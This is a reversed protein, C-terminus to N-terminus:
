STEDSQKKHKSFPSDGLNLRLPRSFFLLVGLSCVMLGVVLVTAKMWPDSTPIGNVNITARPDLVLSLGWIAFCGGVFFFGIGTIRRLVNFLQVLLWFIKQLRSVYQTKVTQFKDTQVPGAVQQLQQGDIDCVSADDSFKKGCYSCQKM